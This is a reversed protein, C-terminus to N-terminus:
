DIPSTRSTDDSNETTHLDKGQDVRELVGNVLTDAVEDRSAILWEAPFSIAVSAQIAGDRTWSFAVDKVEVEVMGGRVGTLRVCKGFLYRAQAQTKIQPVSIRGTVVFAGEIEFADAIRMLEM